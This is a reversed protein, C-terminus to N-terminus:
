LIITLSRKSISTFTVGHVGNQWGDSFNMRKFFRRAVGFRAAKWTPYQLSLFNRVRTSNGKQDRKDPTTGDVDVDDDDGDADVMCEGAPTSYDAPRNTQKLWVKYNKGISDVALYDDVISVDSGIKNLLNYMDKLAEVPTQVQLRQHYCGESLSLM